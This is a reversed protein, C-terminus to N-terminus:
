SRGVNSASSSSISCANAKAAMAAVIIATVADAVITNSRTASPLEAQSSSHPLPLKRHEECSLWLEDQHRSATLM